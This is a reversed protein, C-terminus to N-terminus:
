KTTYSQLLAGFYPITFLATGTTNDVSVGYATQASTPVCMAGINSNNNYTTGSRVNTIPPVIFSSTTATQASTILYRSTNDTTTLVMTQGANSPGCFVRYAFIPNIGNTSVTGGTIFVRSATNTLTIAPYISSSFATGSVNVTVVATSHIASSITSSTGAYTNGTINVTGTSNLFIGCRYAESGGYVNGIVNISTIAANAHISGRAVALSPINTQSTIVNGSITNVSNGNIYLYTNVGGSMNGNIRLAGANNNSIVAGASSPDTLVGTASLYTGMSGYINGNFTITGTTHNLTLIPNTRYETIGTVSATITINATNSSFTGGERVLPSVLKGNNLSNVTIGTAMNIGITKGNAYVDDVSTPLTGDNWQFTGAATAATWFGATSTGTIYKIAM